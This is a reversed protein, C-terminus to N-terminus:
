AIKGLHKKADKKTLWFQKKLNVEDYTGSILRNPSEVFIQKGFDLKVPVIDNIRAPIGTRKHYIRQGKRIKLPLKFERAIPMWPFIARELRLYQRKQKPM